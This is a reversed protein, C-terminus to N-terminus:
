KKFFGKNTKEFGREFLPKFEDFSLSDKISSIEYAEKVSKYEPQAFMHYWDMFAPNIVEQVPEVYAAYQDAYKKKIYGLVHQLNDDIRRELTALKAFARLRRQYNRNYEQKKLAQKMLSEKEEVTAKNLIDEFSM